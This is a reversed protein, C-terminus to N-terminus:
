TGELAPEVVADEATYLPHVSYASCGGLMVCAVSILALARVKM